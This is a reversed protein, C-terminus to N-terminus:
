KPDIDIWFRLVTNGKFNVEDAFIGGSHEIIKRSAFNDDACTLLARQIGLSRAMPLALKLIATGYGQRHKTPRIAYGIHGGHQELAANLEHRISTHGIFEGDDVLWYISAPVRGSNTGCRHACNTIQQLYEVPDDIPGFSHWFGSIGHQEFEALATRYSDIFTRTPQILEM